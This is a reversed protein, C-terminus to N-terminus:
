KFFYILCKFKFKKKKKSTKFNNMKAKVVLAM